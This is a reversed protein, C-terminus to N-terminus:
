ASPRPVGDRPALLLLLPPCGKKKRWFPVMPPPTDSNRNAWFPFVPPPTGMNKFHAIERSHASDRIPIPPGMGMLSLAGERSIARGSFCHSGEGRTGMKSLVSVAVGRGWHNWKPCFWFVPYGVGLRQAGGARSPRRGCGGCAKLPSVVGQFCFRVRPVHFGNRDILFAVKGITGLVVVQRGSRQRMHISFLVFLYGAANSRVRPVCKILVM